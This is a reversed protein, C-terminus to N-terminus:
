ATPKGFLSTGFLNWFHVAGLPGRVDWRATRSERLFDTAHCVIQVVTTEAHILPLSPLDECRAHHVLM